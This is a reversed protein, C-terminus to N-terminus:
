TITRWSRLSSGVVASAGGSSCRQGVVSGQSPRTARRGSRSRRGMRRCRRTANQSLPRTPTRDRFPTETDRPATKHGQAPDGQGQTRNQTGPRSGRTGPVRRRTGPLHQRTELGGRTHPAAPAVTKTGAAPPDSDRQDQRDEAARGGRPRARPLCEPREVSASPRQAGSTPRMRRRAPFGAAAPAPCRRKCPGTEASLVRPIYM